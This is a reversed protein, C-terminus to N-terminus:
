EDRSPVSTTENTRAELEAQLRENEAVLDAILDADFRLVEPISWGHEEERAIYRLKAIREKGREQVLSVVSM